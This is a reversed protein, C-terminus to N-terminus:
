RPWLGAFSGATVLGFGVGARDMRHLPIVLYLVFGAAPSLVPDLLIPLWPEPITVM